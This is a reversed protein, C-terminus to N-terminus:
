ANGGSWSLIAPGSTFGGSVYIGPKGGSIPSTSDTPPTGLTSGNQTLTLTVTTTGTARLRIVDNDAFAATGSALTSVTGNLVKIIRWTRTGGGDLAVYGAYFDRGGDTDASARVIVGCRYSDTLFSLAGIIAQSYQDDNFSGTGNWRACAAQDAVAFNSRASNTNVEPNGGNLPNLSSWNAGLAGDARDFNDSAIEAGGGGAPKYIAAIAAVLAGSM